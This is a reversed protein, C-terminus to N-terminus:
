WGDGNRRWADESRLGAIGANVTEELKRVKEELLRNQAVVNNNNRRLSEFSAAQKENQAQLSEVNVAKSRLTEITRQQNEYAKLYMDRTEEVKLKARDKLKGFERWKKVEERLTYIESQMESLRREYFARSGMDPENRLRDNEYGFDVNARKVDRNQTELASMEGFIIDLQQRIVNSAQRAQDSLTM